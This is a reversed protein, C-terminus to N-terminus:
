ESKEMQFYEKKLDLKSYKVTLYRIINNDIALKNEVNKISDEKESEFKFHVFIGKKNKNIKSALNLLGWKETKLIKGSENILDSYKTILNEVEKNTLDQKGIFTQEYFAM